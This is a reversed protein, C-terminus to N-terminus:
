HRQADERFGCRSPDAIRKTDHGCFVTLPQIPEDGGKGAAHGGGAAAAIHKLQNCVRHGFPQNDDTGVVTQQLRKRCRSGERQGVVHYKEAEHGEAASDLHGANTAAHLDGGNKNKGLDKADAMSGAVAAANSSQSVM